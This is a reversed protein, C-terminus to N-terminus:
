TNPHTVWDINLDYNFNGIEKKEKTQQKIKYFFM